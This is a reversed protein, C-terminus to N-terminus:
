SDYNIDIEPFMGVVTPSFGWGINGNGDGSRGRVGKYEKIRPMVVEVVKSLFCWMDEGRLECGLGMAKGERLGFAAITRKASFVECRVNTIAQLVMGAVHLPASGAVADRVFTHVTIKTLTPM